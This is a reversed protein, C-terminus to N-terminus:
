PQQASLSASFSKRNEPEMRWQTWVVRNTGDGQEITESTLQWGAPLNTAFSNTDSGLWIEAQLTRLATEAEAQRHTMAEARLTAVLGSAVAAIILAAVTFAVVVEILTFGSSSHLSPATSHQLTPFSSSVGAAAGSPRGDSWYEM